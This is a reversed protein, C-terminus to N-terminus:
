LAVLLAADVERDRLLKAWGPASEALLRKQSAAGVFSYHEPALEKFLGEQALERLRDLPFVCNYDRLAGRTDYGPHRIRIQSPDVDEPIVSLVPPRGMFEGIQTVAEEQTPGNPGLPDNGELYLGGTSILAIRCDSLPKTLPSWPATEYSFAPQHGEEPTYGRVQWDLCHKLVEDYDGTDFADGLRQLLGQLFDAADGDSMGGDGLFKFLLDTRSGYFLSKRFGELTEKDVNSM